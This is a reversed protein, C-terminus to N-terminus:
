SKVVELKSKKAEHEMKAVSRKAKHFASLWGKEKGEKKLSEISKMINNIKPLANPGGDLLVQTHALFVSSCRKIYLARDYMEQFEPDKYNLVAIMADLNNALLQCNNNITAALQNVEQMIQENSFNM